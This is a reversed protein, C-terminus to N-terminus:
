QEPGEEDPLEFEGAAYEALLERAAAEESQPVLLGVGGLAHTMLSWMRVTEAGVLQPNLGAQTLVGHLLYAETPTETTAVRVFDGEYTSHQDSM